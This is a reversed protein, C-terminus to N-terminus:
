PWGLQRRRRVIPLLHLSRGSRRYEIM